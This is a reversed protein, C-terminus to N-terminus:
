LLAPGDQAITTITPAGHKGVSVTAEGRVGFGLACDALGDSAKANLLKTGPETVVGHGTAGCGILGDVFVDAESGLNLNRVRRDCPEFKSKLVRVKTKGIALGDDVLAVTKMQVCYFNEPRDIEDLTNWGNVAKGSVPVPEECTGSDWTITVLGDGDNGADVGNTMGM